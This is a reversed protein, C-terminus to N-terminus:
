GVGPVYRRLIAFASEAWQNYAAISKERVGEADRYTIDLVQMLGLHAPHPSLKVSIISGYPIEFSAGRRGFL